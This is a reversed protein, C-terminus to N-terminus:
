MEGHLDGNSLDLQIVRFKQTQVDYNGSQAANKKLHSTLLIGTVLQRSHGM